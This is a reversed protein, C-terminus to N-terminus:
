LSVTPTALTQLETLSGGSRVAEGVTPTQSVIVGSPVVAVLSKAVAGNATVGLATQWRKVAATTASTWTQDVVIKNSPDFGANVLYGEILEIDAGAASTSSLDRWIPVTGEIVTVPSADIRALVMGTTLKTGVPVIETLTGSSAASVTLSGNVTLTGSYSLYTRLDRTEAKVVTTAAKKVVADDSNTSDRIASVGAMAGAGLVFAALAIPWRRRPKPLFDALSQGDASM